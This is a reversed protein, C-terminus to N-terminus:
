NPLNSKMASLIAELTATATAEVNLAPPGPWGSDPFSADHFSATTAYRPLLHYHVHKDVMMLMLYNLGDIDFTRNLTKEIVTIINHLDSFEKEELDSLRTHRRKTSLVGAGLTAQLPRLSWVWYETEYIKLEEVRFKEFFDTPEDSMIEHWNEIALAAM